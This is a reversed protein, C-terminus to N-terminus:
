NRICRIANGRHKDIYHPALGDNNNFAFCHAQTADYATSYWMYCRSHQNSRFTPFSGDAQLWESTPLILDGCTGYGDVMTTGDSLRSYGHVWQFSWGTVPFEGLRPLRYDPNIHKCIDGRLADIDPDGVDNNTNWYPIAGYSSYAGTIIETKKYLITSSSSFGGVPSIGVLSGFKFFVGEYRQHGLDTVDFTLKEGDWFINSWAPIPELFKVNLKYSSGPELAASFTGTTAAGPIASLPTQRVIANAPISVTLTGSQPIVLMPDSEPKTPPAISTWEITRNGTTGSATGSVLGVTGSAVSGLTLTNAISTITWENYSCDVVVRIKALAHELQITLLPSTNNVTVNTLKKRLLDNTGSTALTQSGIDTGRTPNFGTPLSSLDTSNYSFCIFDYEAGDGPIHFTTLSIISSGAQFDGHSVYESTGTKVAIVRFWANTTLQISPKARLLSTDREMSMELVMGNGIPTLVEETKERFDSRVVDMEEGEAIGVLRVRVVVEPGSENDLLEKNDCSVLFLALALGAWLEIWRNNRM